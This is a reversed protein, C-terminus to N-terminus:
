RINKEFCISNKVGKYQGYNPMIKYGSKKYLAIAEPQKNGTELVCTDYKLEAAWNELENLIKSAIGQGRFNPSVYMRKVEVANESFEKIAGCGVAVNGEYAVIVNKLQDITNFQAYFKHQDGDLVRLVADLESVLQQFDRNDCDTRLCTIM